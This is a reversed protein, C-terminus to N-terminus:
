TGVPSFPELRRGSALDYLQDAARGELAHSRRRLELAANVAAIVDARLIVDPKDAGFWRVVDTWRWLRNRTLSHTYPPPFDGEGREGAVLLRVSERTRDSREAIDSMTVLEDPELRLVTLDPTSDVAAIASLVAEAFSDAERTFEGYSVNDVSGFTADDCGAEFLWDATEDRLVDGDIILTFEWEPM